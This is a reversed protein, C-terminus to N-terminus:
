KIFIPMVTCNTTIANTIYINNNLTGGCTGGVSYIRYGADPKIIINQPKGSGLIIPVSINGAAPSTTGGTGAILTLTYFPNVFTVTFACNDNIPKTTWIDGNASSIGCAGAISYDHYGANSNPTITFALSRGPVVSILGSPSITGTGTPGASATVTYAPTFAATVTCSATFLAFSYSTAVTPGTTGLANTKGCGNVSSIRYGANPTVTLTQTAGGNVTLYGSPNIAGGTGASATIIYTQPKFAATVTCPATIARTTYTNGSLTGGCSNSNASGSGAYISAQYGTSPTLTFTMSKEGHTLAAGGM